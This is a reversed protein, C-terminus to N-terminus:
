KRESLMNVTRNRRSVGTLLVRGLLLAREYSAVAKAGQRLQVAVQARYNYAEHIRRRSRTDHTCASMNLTGGRVKTLLTPHGPSQIWIRHVKSCGGFAVLPRVAAFSM